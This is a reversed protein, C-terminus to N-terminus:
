GGYVKSWYSILEEKSDFFDTNIGCNDCEIYWDDKIPYVVAKGQCFPCDFSTTNPDYEIAVPSDQKNELENIKIIAFTTLGLLWIFSVVILVINCNIIADMKESIIKKM